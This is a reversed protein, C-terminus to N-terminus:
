ESSRSVAPLIRGMCRFKVKPDIMTKKEKPVTRISVTICKGANVRLGCKLLYEATKNISEQLGASSSAVLVFDDAFAFANTRVGDVEVGIEDPIGKFLGDIVLNFIMPSLPDGQKVGCTPHIERSTWDGCSLKTSSNEYSHMIYEVMPQPIGAGELVDKITNHTVSDFAKEMDMSAMYLPKHQERSHRLLMDMLFSNEACGDAECFAKQRDDLEVSNLM